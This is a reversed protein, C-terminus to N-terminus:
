KITMLIGCGCSNSVKIGYHTETEYFSFWDRSSGVCWVGQIGIANEKSVALLKQNNNQEVCDTMGDFSSIALVFLSESKRVFSKLTAMTIKKTKLATPTMTNHKKTQTHQKIACLHVFNKSQLCNQLDKKIKVSKLMEFPTIRSTSVPKAFNNKNIKLSNAYDKL